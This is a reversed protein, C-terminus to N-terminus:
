SFNCRFIDTLVDTMLNGYSVDSTKILRKSIREVTQLPEHLYFISPHHNFIDGTITSGSRAHSVIVINRRPKAKLSPLHLGHDQFYLHEKDKLKVLENLTFLLDHNNRSTLLCVVLFILFSTLLIGLITRRRSRVAM